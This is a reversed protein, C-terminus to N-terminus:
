YDDIKKFMLELRNISKKNYISKEIDGCEIVYPSYNKSDNVDEKSVLEDLLNALKMLVKKSVSKDYVLKDKYEYGQFGIYHDEFKKVIGNNIDIKYYINYNSGGDNLTTEYTYNTTVTYYSYKSNSEKKSLINNMFVFLGIIIAIVLIILIKVVEKM